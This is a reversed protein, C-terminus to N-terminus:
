IHILSLKHCKLATSSTFTKSCVDCVFPKRSTHIMKHYSLAPSTTYAKGCVDCVFPRYGTHIRKHESLTRSSAFSKNCIDCVHQDHGSHSRKHRNLNSTTTFTESCVQCKHKRTRSTNGEGKRNDYNGTGSGQSPSDPRVAQMKEGHSWATHRKLGSLQEFAASCHQCMHCRDQSSPTASIVPPSLLMDSIVPPSSLQVATKGTTECGVCKKNTVSTAKVYKQFCCCSFVKYCM